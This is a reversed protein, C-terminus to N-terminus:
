NIIFRVKRALPNADGSVSRDVGGGTYTLRSSSIGADVLIDFVAKARRESLVQNRAETGTEDAYGVLVATVSPNDMMFQKLYSVAGLSGTSVTSSNLDFFVNEYGRALLRKIFDVNSGTIVDGNETLNLEERKVYRQDLKAILTDTNIDAKKEKLEVIEQEASTLRNKINELETATKNDGDVKRYFDAHKKFNGIAFNVGISTNFISANTEGPSPNIGGNFTREQYFNYFTSLDLFLSVRDSIKYQPTLGMMLHVIGDNTANFPIKNSLSGYGIGAHFLLNVKKTWNEFSLLNGANVVGELTGRFLTAEFPNTNDGEIKNIGLDLRLGFKENFMRRVGINAQWLGPNETRYGPSLPFAIQHIGAGIDLSWKNYDQANTITIMAIFAFSTIIKKM